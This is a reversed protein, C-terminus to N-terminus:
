FESRMQELGPRLMVKIIEAAPVICSMGSLGKVYEGDTVISANRLVGSSASSRKLEWEEPFQGWLIGLLSIYHGGGTLIMGKKPPPDIFASGM